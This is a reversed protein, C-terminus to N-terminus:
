ELTSTAANAAASTAAASTANALEGARAAVEVM